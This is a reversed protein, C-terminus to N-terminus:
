LQTSDGIKPTKRFLTLITIMLSPLFFLTVLTSFFLGSLVVIGVGRYLETGAGPIFVLPALGVITTATSMLIPRLRTAVAQNVADRITNANNALNRRTQEVILIPNNVVTGLLIIFGLMTIMDFPQIIPNFGISTILVASANVGVLGLIGGAIGLPITALILFPYFWHKFIAVLLLYILILAIIFNSSLSDRTADLQDAAGSISISVGKGVEGNSRMDPLMQNRVMGVATELAIDRPPIISLTVTRRGDIRRLKDSDVTEIIDALANLPLVTGAPTAVPQTALQSLTQHQGANSFLFIDIKDDNLFFEDVYAGDSLAAVTYGFENADIGLEALREWRPHIEILPQDLSLTRPDSTIQAERFLQEAKLLAYQTTQYLAVQDAGSIDLNVARSGGDNSSIISGRSSFARMGPYSKFLHTLAQMMPEIDQSRTPEAMVWIYGPGIRQFYYKLSPLQINGQDFQAPEAHLAKALHETIEEGIKKMEILNYGPPAIMRTFAKPEEGEPLYEAAPMYHWAIGLTLIPILALSVLRIMLTANLYHIINLLFLFYKSPKTNQQTNLGFHASAAPVVAVAFLMSALIATSVAIAIDSYLQGAEEAVFLVPAFVLVTTLSSALVATWVDKIGAIAAEFRQLGRRRAQEISELVVITNDVTMGIAFAIGAMSIVNITRDFALLGIFAAITCIPMGILGILTARGSRLFLFLILTALLGGIILNRTVNSISAEVYRVDDGILNITLGNPELENRRIEDVVQTMSQKIKIVNSGSERRVAMSLAPENNVISVGWIEYHDLKVEAVDELRIDTGNQHTLILRKLGEIDKFRGTTRILYRRKGENLDGASTDHNRARIANRVDTLSLGRYALKEPDIHIQIQREAGGRLSVNSVGPVREMLPRVEDDIFDTVMQMDLNFPNGSLPTVAYYMFANESFSSSIIRPQNVNEPYSSVQSLANTVEILTENIDIGFAFELEVRAQSTEAVSKMRALNPVSSLYREQELLIEKEVDQPTAGPWGTIVSITRVDLDPIMQVPIRSAAAIGLVIIILVIVTLLKGHYIPGTLM